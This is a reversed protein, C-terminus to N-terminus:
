LNLKDITNEHGIAVEGSEGVPEGDPIYIIYIIIYTSNKYIFKNERDGPRLSDKTITIVTVTDIIMTKM